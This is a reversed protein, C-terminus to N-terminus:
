SLERSPVGLISAVIVPRGRQAVRNFALFPVCATEATLAALGGIPGRKTIDLIAVQEGPRLDAADMLDLDITVSEVYHLDAHTVTARNVKSKLMTCLMVAAKGVSDLLDAWLATSIYREGTGAVIAV